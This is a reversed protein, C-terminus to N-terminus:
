QRGTTAAVHSQLMMWADKVLQLSVFASLILLRSVLLAHKCLLIGLCIAIRTMLRQGSLNKALHRSAQTRHFPGISNANIEGTFPM